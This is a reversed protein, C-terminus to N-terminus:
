HLWPSSGLGSVSYFSLGSALGQWHWPQNEERWAAGGKQKYLVSFGYHRLMGGYPKGSGYLNPVIM